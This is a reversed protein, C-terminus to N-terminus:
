FSTFASLDAIQVSYTGQPVGALTNMASNIDSIRNGLEPGSDASHFQTLLVCTPSTQGPEIIPWFVASGSDGPRVDPPFWAALEANTPGSWGIQRGDTNVYSRIVEAILLKRRYSVPPSGFNNYPTILVPVGYATLPSGLSYLNPCKAQLTEISVLKVFACNTVPQDFFYMGIDNGYEESAAITVSQISGDRRRFNVVDGPAARYHGALLAHRPSILSCPGGYYDFPGAPTGHAVEQWSMDIDQAIRTPNPTAVGTYVQTTADNATKGVIYSSILASVHDALSGSKFGIPYTFQDLGAACQLSVMRKGDIGDILVTALGDNISTLVGGSLDAVEPTSNAISGSWGLSGPIVNITYRRVGVGTPGSVLADAAYIASGSYVDDSVVSITIDEAQTLGRLVPASSNFQVLM